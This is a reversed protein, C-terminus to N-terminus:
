KKEKIREGSITVMGNMIDGTLHDADKRDLVMAVEGQSGIFNVIAQADKITTKEVKYMEKGEADKITGIAKDNIKEFGVVMKVDGNPSAAVINWKGKFYDYGTMPQTQANAMFSFLILMGAFLGSVKKM